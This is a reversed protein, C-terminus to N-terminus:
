QLQQLPGANWDPVFRKEPMVGRCAAYPPGDGGPQDRGIADQRAEHEGSGGDGKSEVRIASRFLKEWIRFLRFECKSPSVRQTSENQM